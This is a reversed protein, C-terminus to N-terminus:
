GIRENSALIWWNMRSALGIFPLLLLLLGVVVRSPVTTVIFNILHCGHCRHSDHDIESCLGAWLEDVCLSGGEGGFENLLPPPSLPCSFPTKMADSEIRTEKTMETRRGQRDHEKRQSRSPSRVIETPREASHFGRAIGGDVEEGWLLDLRAAGSLSRLNRSQSELFSNHLIVSDPGRRGDEGRDTDGEGLDTSSATVFACIYLIPVPNCLSRPLRM